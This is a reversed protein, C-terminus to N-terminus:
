PVPNATVTMVLDNYDPEGVGGVGDDFSLTWTPYAGTVHLAPATVQNSAGSIVQAKLRTGADFVGGGNVAFATGVAPSYCGDDFLTEAIPDTIEFANGHVDCSRSEVTVTVTADALLELDCSAFEGTGPASECQLEAAPSVTFETTKTSTNGDDDTVTLKATVLTRVSM